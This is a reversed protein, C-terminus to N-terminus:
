NSMIRQYGEPAVEVVEYGEPINQYGQPARVVQEINESAMIRQYGEPAAEVVEYGEPINQYGQPAQVVQEINESAYGKKPPKYPAPAHYEPAPAHYVEPEKYEDKHKPGHNYEWYHEGYGDKDGWKVRTRFRHDKSQEFRSIYHHENGRNWGFEYEKHGPVNVYQFFGQPSNLQHQQPQPLGYSL